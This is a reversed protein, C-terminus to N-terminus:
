QGCAFAVRIQDELAKAAETDGARRLYTYALPAYEPLATALFYLAAERPDQPIPETLEVRYVDGGYLVDGRANVVEMRSAQDLESLPIAMVARDEPSEQSYLLRGGGDYLRVTKPNPRGLVPFLLDGVGVQRPLHLTPTTNADCEGGRSQLSAGSTTRPKPKFMEEVFGLLSKGASRAAAQLCEGAKLSREAKGTQMVKLLGERVCLRDGPGLVVARPSDLGLLQDRLLVTAKPEPRLQLAEDAFALGSCCLSLVLIPKTAIM